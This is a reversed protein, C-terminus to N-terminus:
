ESGRVNDKHFILIFPTNEFYTLIIIVTSSELYFHIAHLLLMYVCCYDFSHLSSPISAADHSTRWCDSGIASVVPDNLTVQDKTIRFFISM